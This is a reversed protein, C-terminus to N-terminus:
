GDVGGAMVGRALMQRARRGDVDGVMRDAIASAAREAGREFIGIADNSSERRTTSVARDVARARRTKGRDAVPARQV